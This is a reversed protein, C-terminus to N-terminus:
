LSYLSNVAADVWGNHVGEDYDVVDLLDFLVLKVEGSQSRYKGINSWRVDQHVKKKRVFKSFVEMLQDMYMEREHVLVTAFHPMVLAFAGSWFELRIKNRFEPYLLKWMTKESKLNGSIAEMNDFKLVCVSSSFKTVIVCLWAKGTSGRGLDELAILNKVNKSPYKNYDVHPEVEDYSAPHFTVTKIGKHFKLLCRRLNGNHHTHANAMLQFAGCLLQLVEKPHTHINMVATTCLKREMTEDIESNDDEVRLPVGEVDEITHVTGSIQSPTGEPPSYRTSDSAEASRSSLKLPTSLLGESSRLSSQALVASDVPFWSVLWEEATTLIGIVPGMGYFGEVLLMQDLLEGLVTPQRLVNRGPKKVEVVGVLYRDMLLVCIDPRIHKVTVEANFRLTLKLATLINGMFVRVFHIIDNESSYVLYKRGNDRTSSEEWIANNAGSIDIADAASYPFDMVIGECRAHEIESPVHPPSRSLNQV